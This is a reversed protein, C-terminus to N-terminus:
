ITLALYAAYIILMVVGQTKYAKEKILMPVIAVLTILFCVPFDFKLSTPSVAFSGGSVLSCVPLILALDIINAGIINGASLHAQKKVIATITTVLEPLSTGIAVMTVAIVREPAGLATAIDSGGNILLNSGVVIAGAGVAFLVINKIIEKKSCEPKEEIEQSQKAEIINTAIFLVFLVALAVTAWLHVKGGISGAWLIGATGILILCQKLYKKRPAIVSLFIFAIALILGTNATVSGIANGVAMDNKGEVSAIVSVIMEPLTTAVSVITAGIIFPPINAARAIWSASDVFWDGGKVVLVIGVAFLLVSMWIEM